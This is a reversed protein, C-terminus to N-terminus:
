VPIFALPWLAARPVTRFLFNTSLAANGHLRDSDTQEAHTRFSRRVNSQHGPLRIALRSTEPTGSCRRRLGHKVFSEFYNFGVTLGQLKQKLCLVWEHIM